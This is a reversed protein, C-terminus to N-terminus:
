GGWSNGNTTTGSGGSSGNSGSDAQSGSSGPETSAILITPIEDYNQQWQLALGSEASNPLPVMLSALGNFASLFATVVLLTIILIRKM